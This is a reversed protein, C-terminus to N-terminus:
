TLAQDTLLATQPLPSRCCHFDIIVKLTLAVMVPSGVIGKKAVRLNLTEAKVEAMVYQKAAAEVPVARVHICGTGAGRDETVLLLRVSLVLVDFKVEPTVVDLSEPPPSRTPARQPPSGVGAGSRAGSEPLPQLLPPSAGGDEREPAEADASWGGMGSVRFGFDIWGEDTSKEV